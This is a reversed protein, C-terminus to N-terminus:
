MRILRFKSKIMKIFLSVLMSIVFTIVFIFLPYLVSYITDGIINLRQSCLQIFKGQLGMSSCKFYVIVHFLYIIFTRDSIFKIMKKTRISINDFNWSYLFCFAATACLIGFISDWNLYTSNNTDIFYLNEQAVLRAFNIAIFTLLSVFRIVLNGKISNRKCSIEFGIIGLLISTDFFSYTNLSINYLLKANSVLVSILQLIILLRRCLNQEKGEQCIWKLLPYFLIWKIYAFIYWFHFCGQLNGANQQLISVNIENWPIYFTIGGWLSSSSIWPYIIQTVIAVLFAPLVISLVCKKFRNGFTTGNFMFFGSLIFFISVGDGFLCAFFLRTSIIHDDEWFGLKVHTAVVIYTALIRILDCAYDREKKTEM